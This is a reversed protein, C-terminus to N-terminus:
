FCCPRQIGQLLSKSSKAPKPTKPKEKYELMSKFKKPVDQVM